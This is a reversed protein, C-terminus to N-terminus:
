KKLCTLFSILDRRFGSDFLGYVFPNVVHNLIYGQRFFLYFHLKWHPLEFLMEPHTLECMKLINSPIYTLIFLLAIAMFMYSFRNKQYRYRSALQGTNSTSSSRRMKKVKSASFGGIGELLTKDLNKSIELVNCKGDKGPTQDVRNTYSSSSFDTSRKKFRMANGASQKITRAILSYLASIAIMVIVILVFICIDYGTMFISFLAHHHIHDCRYGEIDFTHHHVSHLGYFMFVPLNLLVTVLFVLALCVRSNSFPRQFQFPRCIRQYRHVAILLLVGDGTAAFVRSSFNLIQCLRYSPYMVPFINDMTKDITTLITALLDFFALHPILFRDELKGKIRFSYFFIVVTNGLIGLAFYIWLLITNFLLKHVIENNWERLTIKKSIDQFTSLNNIGFTEPTEINDWSTSYNKWADM